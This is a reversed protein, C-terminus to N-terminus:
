GNLIVTFTAIPKILYEKCFVVRDDGSFQVPHTFKVRFDDMKIPGSCIWTCDPCMINTPIRLIALKAETSWMKNPHLTIWVVEKSRSCGPTSHVIGSTGTNNANKIISLPEYCQPCKYMDEIPLLLSM